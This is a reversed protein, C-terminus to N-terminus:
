RDRGEITMTSVIPMSHQFARSMLSAGSRERAGSPPRRQALRPRLSRLVTLFVRAFVLM